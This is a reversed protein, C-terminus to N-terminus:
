AVSALGARRRSRSGYLRPSFVTMLELGDHALRDEFRSPREDVIVVAIGKLRCIDILLDAGFRLLRDKNEIVIREVRSTCTLMVLRRLGRKAVNLGSGLDTILDANWGNVRAHAMLRDAQRALDDKQDHCSVRAYCVTREERDDRNETEYRRHGGLTRNAPALRGEKEWRRLTPISVGLRKAMEGISVLM